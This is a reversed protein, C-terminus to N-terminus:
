IGTNKSSCLFMLNAEPYFWEVRAFFKELKNGFKVAEPRKEGYYLRNFVAIGGPTLLGLVLRLFDKDGFKKPFKDGCYLDICVLDFKEAKLKSNHKQTKVNSIQTIYKYADGIVIKVGSKDLGIYRKGLEVMIPDIEVGTIKAKPWNKRVIKAISGGGLGLTICNRIEINSNRIKRLVSKWAAYVVGGSQTLGSAQIYTGWALDRKVVIHGNIPSDMEALVKTGSLFDIIKNM